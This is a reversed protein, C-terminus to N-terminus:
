MKIYLKIKLLLSKNLFEFGILFTEIKEIEIFSISFVDWVQLNKWIAFKSLNKM